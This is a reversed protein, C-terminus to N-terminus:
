AANEPARIVEEFVKWTERAMIEDTHHQLVGRRGAEGLATRRQPDAVLERLASALGSPDAPNYLVGGGTTQILEPFSGHHPQVVPLGTAMAELVFLGKAEHYSTPVSLLHAAQLLEWKRARDVEGLYEFAAEHGAQRVYDLTAELYPRDAEGLYGAARVRCPVGSERLAVFARALDGFGKAPSVRALYAITPESVSDRPPAPPADLSIGLPVYRVRERPLGFYRTAHECYYRTVGIFADVDRAKARIRELARARWIEPLSDIFIDEGSLTCVIRAGLEDRIRRALGLLMVDRLCVIAPRMPRLADILRQLEKSQHGHEGDLMSVTLAGLDEAETRAAFKGVGNLLRRADLVRDLVRPLWRFLASKQQLYVNIGGYYVPGDGAPAEDTRLPTYLPMLLVDRGQARLTAAVRNERLCSGCYMGAAGAALMVVRM